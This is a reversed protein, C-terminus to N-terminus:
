LTLTFISFRTKFSCSESLLLLKWSSILIKILSMSGNGVKIAEAMALAHTGGVIDFDGQALIVVTVQRNWLLSIIWDQILVRLFWEFGHPQFLWTTAELLFTTYYTAVGKLM